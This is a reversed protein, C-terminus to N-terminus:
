AQQRDAAPGVAKTLNSATNILGVHSFAQPFNGVLRKAQVDYEESLLGVDNRLGLLRDFLERAEATCGQLVLNDALRVSFQGGASADRELLVGRVLASSAAPVPAQAALLIPFLLPLWVARM